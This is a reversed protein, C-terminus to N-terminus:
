IQSLKSARGPNHVGFINRCGVCQGPRHTGARGPAGTPLDCRRAPRRMTWQSEARIKEDDSGVCDSLRTQKLGHDNYFAVADGAAKNRRDALFWGKAANTLVRHPFDSGVRILRLAAFTDAADEMKGLVPLGMQTISAHAKEHLVVFLL